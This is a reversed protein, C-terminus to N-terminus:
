TKKIKRPYIGLSNVESNKFSTWEFSFTGTNSLMQLKNKKYTM